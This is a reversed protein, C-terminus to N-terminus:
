KTFELNPRGSTLCTNRTAIWGFCAIESPAKTELNMKRTLAEKWNSLNKQFM